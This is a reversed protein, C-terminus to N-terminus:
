IMGGSGSKQLKARSSISSFPMVVEKGSSSLKMELQKINVIMGKDKATTSGSEVEMSSM